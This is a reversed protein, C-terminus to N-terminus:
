DLYVLIRQITEVSCSVPIQSKVLEPSLRFQKTLSKVLQLDVRILATKLVKLYSQDAELWQYLYSVVSKHKLRVAVLLAGYFYIEGREWSFDLRTCFYEVLDLHNLAAAEILSKYLQDTLTKHYEKWLQDVLPDFRTAYYPFIKQDEFPKLPKVSLEFDEVLYRVIDPQHHAIACSLLSEYPSEDCVGPRHSKVIESATLQTRQAYYRVIELHGAEIALRIPDYSGNRIEHSMYDYEVCFYSVIELYGAKTAERLAQNGRARVDKGTLQGVQCLFRVLELNGTRAAQTLLWHDSSWPDLPCLFDQRDYNYNQVLFKVVELSGGQVAEKLAWGKWYKLKLKFRETLYQVISLHGRSAAEIAATEISFVSLPDRTRLYDLWFKVLALSGSGAAAKLIDQASSQIETQDLHLHDLLWKVMELHSQSTASTLFSMHWNKFKRLEYDPLSTLFDMMRVLGFYLIWSLILDDVLRPHAMLQDLQQSYFTGYYTFFSILCLPGLNDESASSLVLQDSPIEYVTTIMDILPKINEQLPLYTYIEEWDARIREHELLQAVQGLLFKKNQPNMVLTKLDPSLGRIRLYGSFFEQRYLKLWQDFRQDELYNAVELISTSIDSPQNDPQNDPQDSDAIKERSEMSEMSEVSEISVLWSLYDELEELSLAVPVSDGPEILGSHDEILNLITQFQSVDVEELLRETPGTFPIFSNLPVSDDLRGLCVLNTVITM